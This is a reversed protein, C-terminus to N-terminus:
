ETVNQLYQWLTALKKVQKRPKWIADYLAVYKHDNAKIGAKSLRELPECMFKLLEYITM